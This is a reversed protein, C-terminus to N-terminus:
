QLFEKLYQHGAPPFWRASYAVGFERQVCPFFGRDILPWARNGAARLFFSTSRIRKCLIGVSCPATTFLLIIGSTSASDCAPWSVKGLTTRLSSSAPPTIQSEYIVNRPRRFYSFEFKGSNAVTRSEIYSDNAHANTVVMVGNEHAATLMQSKEDYTYVDTHGDSDVTEIL